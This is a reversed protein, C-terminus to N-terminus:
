SSSGTGRRRNCQTHKGEEQVTVPQATMRLPLWLDALPHTSPGGCLLGAHQAGEDAGDGGEDDGNEDGENEEADEGENNADTPATEPMRMTKPRVPRMADDNDKAVNDHADTTAIRPTGMTTPRMPREADESDRAEHDDADTPATGPTRM